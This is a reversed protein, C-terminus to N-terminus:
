PQQAKGRRKWVYYNPRVEGASRINIQDANYFTITLTTVNPQEGMIVTLTKGSATIYRAPIRIQNEKHVITIEGKSFHYATFLLKELAKPWMTASFDVRQEPTMQAWESSDEFNAWSEESDIVWTGIIAAQPNVTEARLLGPLLLSAVFLCRIILAKM